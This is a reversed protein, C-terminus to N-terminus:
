WAREGQNIADLDVRLAGAASARSPMSTPRRSASTEEPLLEVQWQASSDSRPRGVLLWLAPRPESPNFDVWWKSGATGITQGDASATLIDVHTLEVAPVLPDEVWTRRVGRSTQTERLAVLALRPASGDYEVAVIEGSLAARRAAVGLLRTIEASEFEAQRRGSDIMRPAILGLLVGVLIIVVILEILTFARRPRCNVHCLECNVNPIHRGIHVTFHTSHATTEHTNV